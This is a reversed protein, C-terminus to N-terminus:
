SDPIYNKVISLNITKHMAPIALVIIVLNCNPYVRISPFTTKHNVIAVVYMGQIRSM